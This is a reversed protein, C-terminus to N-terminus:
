LLREGTNGTTIKMSNKWATSSLHKVTCLSVIRMPSPKAAAGQLKMGQLIGQTGPNMEVPTPVKGRRGPNVVANQRVKGTTCLGAVVSGKDM